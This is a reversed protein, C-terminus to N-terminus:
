YERAGSAAAASPSTPATTSPTTGTADDTQGQGHHPKRDCAEKLVLTESPTGSKDRLEEDPTLVPTTPANKLAAAHLDGGLGALGTLSVALTALGTGVLATVTISGTHAAVNVVTAGGPAGM